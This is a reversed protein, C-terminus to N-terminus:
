YRCPIGSPFLCFFWCGSEASSFVFGAHALSHAHMSSCTCVLDLTFVAVCFDTGLCLRPSLVLYSVRGLSAVCSWEGGASQHPLFPPLPSLPPRVSAVQFLLRSDASCQAANDATLLGSLTTYLPTSPFLSCM